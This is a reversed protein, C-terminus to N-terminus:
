AKAQVASLRCVVFHDHALIMSSSMCLWVFDGLFSCTVNQICCPECHVDDLTRWQFLVEVVAQPCLMSCCAIWVVWSCEFTCRIFHGFIISPPFFIKFFVCVYVCLFVYFTCTHVVLWCCSLVCRTCTGTGRVSQGPPVRGQGTMLWSSFVNLKLVDVDWMKRVGHCPPVQGQGTLWWDVPFYMKHGVNWRCSPAHGEGVLWRDVLFYMCRGYKMSPSVCTETEGTVSESSLVYMGFILSVTPLVHGM